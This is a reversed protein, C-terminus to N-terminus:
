ERKDENENAMEQFTFWLKNKSDEILEFLERPTYKFDDVLMSLTGVLLQHEPRELNLKTKSMGRKGGQV